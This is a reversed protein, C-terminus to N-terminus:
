ATNQFESGSSRTSGTANRDQIRPDRDHELMALFRRSTSIVERSYALLLNTEAVVTKLREIERKTDLILAKV